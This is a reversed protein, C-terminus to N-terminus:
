TKSREYMQTEFQNWNTNARKKRLVWEHRCSMHVNALARLRRASSVVELSLPYRLLRRYSTQQEADSRELLPYDNTLANVRERTANAKM